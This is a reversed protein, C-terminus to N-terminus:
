RNARRWAVGHNDIISQGDWRFQADLGMPVRISITEGSQEWTGTFKETRTHLVFTGNEKFEIQRQVSSDPESFRGMVGSSQSSRGASLGPTSPAKMELQQVRRELDTLRQEVTREDAVAQNTLASFLVAGSVSLGLVLRLINNSKNMM